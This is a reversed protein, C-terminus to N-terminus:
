PKAPPPAPALGAERVVIEMARDIPIAVIGKSKDIWRPTELRELQSVRLLRLEAPAERVVKGALEARNTKEYLGQVFVVTVVLLITGVIGVVLTSTADPDSEEISSGPRAHESM